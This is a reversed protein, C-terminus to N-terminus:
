WCRDWCGCGPACLLEVEDVCYKRKMTKNSSATAAIVESERDTIRLIARPQDSVDSPGRIKIKGQRGALLHTAIDDPSLAYLCRLREVSSTRKEILREARVSLVEMELSKSRMRWWGEFLGGSWGCGHGEEAGGVFFGGGGWGWRGGGGGGGAAAAEERAAAGGRGGEVVGGGGGGYFAV